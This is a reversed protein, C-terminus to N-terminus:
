HESDYIVEEPACIIPSNYGAVRNIAETVIRTRVRNIHHFNLSIICDMGNVSAIAIHLCDTRFRVPMIGTVLYTDALSEARADTQFAQINHRSILEIMEERKPSPAKSLEDVVELSTYAAIKGEAIRNFL